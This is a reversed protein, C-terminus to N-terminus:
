SRQWRMGFGGPGGGFSGLTRLVIAGPDPVHAARPHSAMYAQRKAQRQAMAAQQATSMSAAMVTHQQQMLAQTNARDAAAINVISQKEAPALM